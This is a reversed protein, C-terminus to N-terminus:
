KTKPGVGFLGVIGAILGLGVLLLIEDINTSFGGEPQSYKWRDYCAIGIGILGALVQRSQHIIDNALGNAYTLQELPPAPPSAPPTDTM